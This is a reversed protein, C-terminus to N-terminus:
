VALPYSIFGNEDEETTSIGEIRLNTDVAKTMDWLTLAAVSVATLAEMEIGTKAHISAMAAIRLRGPDKFDRGFSVSVQDLPLSHCLPILEDCKKAAQIGAIRAAALAEGKPGDGSEILDLTSKKACFYGEAIAERKMVPKDGVNVMHVQGHEDVHSLPGTTGLDKTASEATSPSTSKSM